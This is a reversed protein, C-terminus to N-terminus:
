SAAVDQQRRNQHSRRGYLKASFVTIISLVDKALEDESAEGSCRDLVVIEGGHAKVIAEILEFGFRLLRDKHTVYLRRVRGALIVGLQKALGRKKFNLGSGLDSIVLTNASGSLHATLREVQRQLDQKQDAASVRAYAVDLRGPEVEGTETEAQGKGLQRLADALDYRRHGGATRVQPKLAGSKDWRRLTAPCVGIERALEGITLLM